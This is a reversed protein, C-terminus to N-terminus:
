LVAGHLDVTATKYIVTLSPMHRPFGPTMTSHGKLAPIQKLSSSMDLRFHTASLTTDQHQKLRGCNDSGRMNELTLKQTYPGKPADYEPERGAALAAITQKAIGDYIAKRVHFLIRAAFRPSAEKDVGNGDDWSDHISRDALMSVGGRLSAWAENWDKDSLERSEPTRTEQYPSENAQPNIANSPLPTTEDQETDARQALRRPKLLEWADDNLPTVIQLAAWFAPIHTLVTSPLPPDLM